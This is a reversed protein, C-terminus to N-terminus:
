IQEIYKFLDTQNIEDPLVLRTQPWNAWKTISDENKVDVCIGGVDEMRMTNMEVGLAKIKAIVDHERPHRGNDDYPRYNMADMLRASVMHCAGIPNGYKKGNAPYGSWYRLEKTPLNYFYLDSLGLHDGTFNQYFDWLSQTIFDDSGTMLYYIGTGKAEQCGDNTKRGCPLNPRQIYKVNDYEKAIEECGDDSSGALIILPRPTLHYHNELFQKLIKPRRWVPVILTIRNDTM